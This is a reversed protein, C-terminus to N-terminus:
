RQVVGIYVPAPSSAYTPLAACSGEGSYYFDATLNSKQIQQLMAAWMACTVPSVGQRETNLNCVHTYDGRGTHRVNVVGDGYVLVAQLKVSCEYVALASTPAGIALAMLVPRAALAATRGCLRLWSSAAGALHGAHNSHM